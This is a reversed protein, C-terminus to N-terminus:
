ELIAVAARGQLRGYRSTEADPYCEDNFSNRKWTFHLARSTAHKACFMQCLLAINSM